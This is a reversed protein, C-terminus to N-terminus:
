LNCQGLFDLADITSKKFLGQIMQLKLVACFEWLIGRPTTKMWKLFAIARIGHETSETMTGLFTSLAPLQARLVMVTVSHESVMTKLFTRVKNFETTSMLGKTTCRLMEERLGPPILDKSSQVKSALDSFDKNSLGPEFFASLMKRLDKSEAKSVTATDFTLCCRDMRRSTGDVALRDGGPPLWIHQMNCNPLTIGIGTGDGGIMDHLCCPTAKNPISALWNCLASQIFRQWKKPAFGVKEPASWGNLGPVAVRTHKFFHGMHMGVGAMLGQEGLCHKLFWYVLEWGGSFLFVSSRIKVLKAM